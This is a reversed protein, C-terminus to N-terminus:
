RKKTAFKSELKRDIPFYIALMISSVIGYNLWINDFNSKTITLSLALFYVTLWTVYWVYWIFPRKFKFKTSCEPCVFRGFPSKAYRAWTLEIDIKCNPCKM